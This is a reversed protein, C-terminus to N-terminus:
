WYSLSEVSVLVLQTYRVPRSLGIVLLRSTIALSVLMVSLLNVSISDAAGTVSCPGTLTGALGSNLKSDPVCRFSEWRLYAFYM